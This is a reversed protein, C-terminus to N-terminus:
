IREEGRRRTEVRSRGEIANPCGAVEDRPERVHLREVLGYRQQTHLRVVQEVEAALKQAEEVRDEVGRGGVRSREIGRDLIGDRRSGEGGGLHRGDRAVVRVLVVRALPPEAIPEPVGVNPLQRVDRELHVRVQEREVELELWLDGERG